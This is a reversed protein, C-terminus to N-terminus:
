YTDFLTIRCSFILIIFDFYLLQSKQTGKIWILEDCFHKSQQMPAIITGNVRISMIQYHEKPLIKNIQINM